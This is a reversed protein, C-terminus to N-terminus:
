PLGLKRFERPTAGRLRKFQRNFNSLNGFGCAFAIEAVTRDSELLSRCARGVRLGIVYEVFPQGMHRHFFRSFAQPSLHAARAAADLRVGNCLNANIYATARELRDSDVHARVPRYGESALFEAGGAVLVGLLDLLRAVRGVGRAAWLADLAGDAAAATADDFRLGRRGAELMGGVGRMEPLFLLESGFCGPLFQVYRSRAAAPAMHSAQPPDNVYMHPLGTGLLLVEGPAFHGLHDGVLRSGRSEVIQIVEIEPHVHLPCDFAPADWEGCAIAADAPHRVKEFVVRM